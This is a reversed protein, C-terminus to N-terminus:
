RIEECRPVKYTDVTCMWRQGGLRCVATDDDTLGPGCGHRTIQDCSLKPNLAHAYTIAKNRCGVQSLGYGGGAFFGTIAVLAIYDLFKSFWQGARARASNISAKPLTM